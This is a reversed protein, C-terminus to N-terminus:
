TLWTLGSHDTDVFTIQINRDEPKEPESIEIAKRKSFLDQMLDMLVGVRTEADLVPLARVIEAPRWSGASGIPRRASRNPALRSLSLRATPTQQLWQWHPQTFSRLIGPAGKDSVDESDLVVPKSWAESHGHWFASRGQLPVFM